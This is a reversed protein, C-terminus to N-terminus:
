RVLGKARAAKYTELDPCTKFDFKQESTKSNLPKIPQPANTVKKAAAVTPEKTIYSAELKGFERYLTAPHMKNFKDVLDPNQALHYALEAGIESDLLAYNLDPCTPEDFSNVVEDYDAFKERAAEKGAEYKAVKAQRENEVLKQKSQSEREQADKKLVERAKFESLAEVFDEHTSFDDLKPKEAPKVPETALQALQAQLRANEEQLRSIKKQFGGRRQKKGTDGSDHEDKPESEPVEVAPIEEVKEPEKAEPATYERVIYGDQKDGAVETTETGLVTDIDM